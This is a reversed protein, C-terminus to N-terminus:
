GLWQMLADRLAIAADEALTLVCQGTVHLDLEIVGDRKSIVVNTFGIGAGHTTCIAHIVRRNPRSQLPITPPQQAAIM